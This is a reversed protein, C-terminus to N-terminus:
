PQPSGGAPPDYPAQDLGQKILEDRLMLLLAFQGNYTTNDPMVKRLILINRKAAYPVDSFAMSPVQLQAPLEDMHAEFWQFCAECEEKTYKKKFFQNIPM